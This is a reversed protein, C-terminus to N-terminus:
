EVVETGWGDYTGHEAAALAVFTKRLQALEPEAPIMSRTALVAWDSGKAAPAVKADFNLGRIKSALREAAEHTPVYLFFEIPHPKSLDSGAQQLQAIVQADLGQQARAIRPWVFIAATVICILVVLSGYNGNM